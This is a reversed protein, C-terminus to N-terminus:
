FQKYGVGKVFTQQWPGQAKGEALRVYLEGHAEGSVDAYAPAGDAKREDAYYFRCRTLMTRVRLCIHCSLVM